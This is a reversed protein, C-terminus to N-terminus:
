KELYKQLREYLEYDEEDELDLTAMFETVTPELAKDSFERLKNVTEQHNYKKHAANDGFAIEYIAEVFELINM